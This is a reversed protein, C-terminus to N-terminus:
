RCAGALEEFGAIACRARASCQLWVLSFKRVRKLFCMHICVHVCVEPRMLFDLGEALREVTLREVAVPAPGVGSRRCMEGWFAQDGFFPVTMTPCGAALGAGTTGAAMAGWSFRQTLEARECEKCSDCASSRQSHTMGQTSIVTPVTVQAAMTSSLRASGSSGTMLSMASACCTSM